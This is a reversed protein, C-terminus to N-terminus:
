WSPCSPCSSYLAQVVFPAFSVFISSFHKVVFIVSFVFFLLAQVVFNVFSVFFFLIQVGFDVFDVFFFSHHVVLFGVIWISGFGTM